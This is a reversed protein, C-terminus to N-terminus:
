MDHGKNHKQRSHNHNKVKKSGSLPEPQGSNSKPTSGNINQEENKSAM